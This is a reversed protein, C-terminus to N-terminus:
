KKKSGDGQDHCLIGSGRWRIAFRDQTIAIPGLAVGRIDDFSWVAGQHRDPKRSRFFTGIIDHDAERASVGLCTLPGNRDGDSIM